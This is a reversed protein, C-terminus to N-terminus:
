RWPAEERALGVTGPARLQVSRCRDSKATSDDQRKMVPPWAQEATCHAWDAASENGRLGARCPGPSLNGEAATLVGGPAPGASSDASNLVTAQRDYGIKDVTVRPWVVSTRSHPKGKLAATAM